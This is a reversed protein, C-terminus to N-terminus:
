PRVITPRVQIWVQGGNETRVLATAFGNGVIAWGVKDNAFEFQAQKWAVESVKNWTEGGDRTYLVHNLQPNDSTVMMWGQRANLFYVSLLQGPLVWSHWKPEVATSLYHARQYLYKPDNPLTCTLEVAMSGPAMEAISHGNCQLNKQAPLQLAEIGWNAGGDSTKLIAWQKPDDNGWWGGLWGTQSDFFAMNTMTAPLYSQLASGYLNKIPMWTEGGDSSKFLLVDRKQAETEALLLLWGHRADPFQLSLPSYKGTGLSIPQSGEWTNGGDQTRWIINNVDLQSPVAWVTERNFAFLSRDGFSVQFPTVDRWLGGGDSTKIIRGGAEVGWGNLNDSMQIARLTIPEAALETETPAPATTITATPIQVVITPESTATSLLQKTKTVQPLIEVKVAFTGCASLLLCLFVIIAKKMNEGLSIVIDSSVAISRPQLQNEIETKKNQTYRIPLLLSARGRLLEFIRHILDTVDLLKQHWRFSSPLFV